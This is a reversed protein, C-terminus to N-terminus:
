IGFCNGPRYFISTESKENIGPALGVFELRRFGQGELFQYGPTYYKRESNDWIIVGDPRLAQVAFPACRVRLRGDIVVVSFHKGPRLALKPYTEKDEISEFYIQVNAPASKSVKEFWEQNHEAAGVWSVRKSWWLTSAGSGYEFVTMDPRARRALFEMAPYTIFPVPNGHFDVPRHEDFSRLWGDELLPGRVKLSYPGYLHWQKLINQAAAKLVSM